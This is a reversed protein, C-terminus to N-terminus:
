GLWMGLLFGVAILSAMFILPRIHRSMLLM